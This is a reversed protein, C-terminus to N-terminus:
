TLTVIPEHTVRAYSPCRGQTFRVYCENLGKTICEMARYYVMEHVRRVVLMGITHVRGYVERELTIVRM